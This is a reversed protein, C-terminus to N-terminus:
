FRRRCPNYDLLNISSDGLPIQILEKNARRHRTITNIIKEYINQDRWDTYDKTFLFSIVLGLSYMDGKQYQDLSAPDIFWGSLEPAQWYTNGYLGRSADALKMKGIAECNLGLLQDKSLEKTKYTNAVMNMGQEVYYSISLGVASAFVPGIIPTLSKSVAERVASKAVNAVTKTSIKSTKKLFDSFGTDIKKLEDETSEQVKIKKNKRFESMIKRHKSPTMLIETQLCTQEDCAMGFDIYKIDVKDKDIKIMINDPKIHRHAMGVSHLLKLGAILEKAIRVRIARDIPEHKLIIEMLSKYDKLYEILIVLSFGDQVIGVPCVFYKKCENGLKSLNYYEEQANKRENSHYVKMAYRNGDIKNEVLYVKAVGGEGLISIKKYHSPNYGLLNLYKKWM